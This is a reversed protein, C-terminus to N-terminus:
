KASEVDDWAISELHQGDLKLNLAKSRAEADAFDYAFVDIGWIAGDHSCSALFRLTPRDSSNM